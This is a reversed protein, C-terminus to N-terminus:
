NYAQLTPVSCQIPNLGGIVYQPQKRHGEEPPIEEEAALEQVRGGTLRDYTRRVREETWTQGGFKFETPRPQRENAKGMMWAARDKSLNKSWKWVRFKEKYM